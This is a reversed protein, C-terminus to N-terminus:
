SEIGLAHPCVSRCKNCKKLIFGREILHCALPRCLEQIVSEGDLADVPCNDICLTCGPPCVDYPGPPDGALEADLLVAGIQIM